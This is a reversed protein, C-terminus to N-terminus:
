VATNTEKKLCQLAENRKWQLSVSICHVVELHELRHKLLTEELQIM